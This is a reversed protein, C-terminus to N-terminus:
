INFQPNCAIAKIAWMQTQELNTMALAKERSSPIENKILYALQKTLERVDSIHKAQEADIEHTDFSKEIDLDIPYGLRMITSARPM